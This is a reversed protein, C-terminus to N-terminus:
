AGAARRTAIAEAIRKADRGVGRFLSSTLAYLFFLGVFYLGPQGPIVGAHHVPEKPNEADGFIPLDIWTYDPRFGTCWVVNAVDLVRGDETRPRGDEVGAIGPIRTIGAADIDAAKVRVNPGVSGIRSRVRRGIPNRICLIRHFIQGVVTPVGLHRGFPTDIRFPIQPLTRGSLWTRASRASRAAELAIESGSDSAGVVLVDGDQFQSPNRYRSSHLQV